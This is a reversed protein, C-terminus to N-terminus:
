STRESVLALEWQGFSLLLNVMLSGAATSTDFLETASVFTVNHKELATWFEYFDRISRSIRDIRTCLVIDM